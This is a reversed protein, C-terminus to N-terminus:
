EEWDIRRLAALAGAGVATASAIVGFGPSDTTTDIPSATETETPTVQGTSPATTRTPTPSATATATPTSTEDDWSGGPRTATPTPTGPPTITTSGPSPFSFSPTSEYDHEPDPIPCEGDSEDSVNTYDHNGPYDSVIPRGSVDIVADTISVDNGGLAIGDRSGELQRICLDTFTADRQPIEIAAGDEAEGTISVREVTVPASGDAFRIAPASGTNMEFRCNRVTISEPHEKRDGARDYFGVGREHNSIVDINELYGDFGYWLWAARGTLAGWPLRPIKGEEFIVTCNKAYSDPTGLRISTTNNNRFFCNEVGVSGDMGRSPVGAGSAYIANDTFEEFSCRRFLLHGAHQNAVWVGGKRYYEVTGDPSHVNEIIGSGDSDTVGPVINFPGKREGHDGYEETPGGPGDGAGDFLLNRMVLDDDALVRIGVSTHHATQDFILNELHIGTGTLYLMVPNTDQTPRLRADGEGVLALNSVEGGESGQDRTIGYDAIWYTGEPFVIKTDDDMADKLATNISEEGTPDAGYDDVINVVNGYDAQASVSGTAGLGGALAAAALSSRLFSRRNQAVGSSVRRDSTITSTSSRGTDPEKVM